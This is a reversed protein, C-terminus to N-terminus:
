PAIREFVAIAGDMRTDEYDEITMVTWSFRPIRYLLRCLWVSPNYRTMLSCSIFDPETLFNMFLSNCFLDWVRNKWTYGSSAQYDVMQGRIYENRELKYWRLVRPDMSQIAFIGDYTDLVECTEECLYEVDGDCVKLELVVPVQGAILALAEELTPITEESGALTLERIEDITCDEVSGDAGTMRYLREDHFVVPVGDLTMRVDMKVGYGHDMAERFAALSNEPIGKDPDYLGRGAYDYRRIESLDPKDWIRPKVAFAWATATGLAFGFLNRIRKSM